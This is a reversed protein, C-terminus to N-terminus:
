IDFAVGIGVYMDVKRNLVGYGVSVNPALHFRETINKKREVYKTITVTNTITTEQKRWDAKISDFQVNQGKIFSTLIISDKNNCLTDRFTKNEAYFVTDKGDKTYFTDRKIINREILKPKYRTIYLTDTSTLTDRVMLTDTKPIEWWNRFHTSGYYLGIAILCLIFCTILLANGKMMKLRRKWIRM